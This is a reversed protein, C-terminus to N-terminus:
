AVEAESPHLSSFDVKHCVPATLAVVEGQGGKRSREPYIDARDDEPDSELCVPDGEGPLKWGVRYARRRERGTNTHTHVHTRTCLHTDTHISICTHIHARLRWLAVDPLLEWANNM